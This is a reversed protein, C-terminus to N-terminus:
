SRAVTPPLAVVRGFPQADVRFAPFDFLRVTGGVRLVSRKADLFHSFFSNRPPHVFVSCFAQNRQNRSRLLTAIPVVASSPLPTRHDRGGKGEAEAPSNGFSRSRIPVQYNCRNRATMASSRLTLGSCRGPEKHFSGFPVVHHRRNGDSRERIGSRRNM